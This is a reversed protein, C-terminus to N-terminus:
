TLASTFSAETKAKVENKDRLAEDGTLTDPAMDLTEELLRLADQRTM